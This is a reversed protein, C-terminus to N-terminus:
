NQTMYIFYYFIYKKVDSKKWEVHKLFEDMNNFAYHKTRKLQQTSNTMYRWKGLVGKINEDTSQM